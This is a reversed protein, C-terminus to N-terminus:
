KGESESESEDSQLVDTPKDWDKLKTSGRTMYDDKLWRAKKRVAGEEEREMEEEDEDEDEEEDEEENKVGKRILKLFSDKTLADKKRKRGVEKEEKEEIKAMKRAKAVANFLAVAGKTATVVLQKELAANTSADPVVRGNSEFKLKALRAERM